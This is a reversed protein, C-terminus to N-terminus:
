PVICNCTTVDGNCGAGEPDLGVIQDERILSRIAALHDSTFAAPDTISCFDYDGLPISDLLACADNIQALSDDGLDVTSSVAGINALARTLGTGFERLDDDHIPDGPDRTAGSNDCVDYGPTVVGDQDADAYYSLITGMKAFSVLVMLLNEDSTRASVDGISEILAEAARCNDIRTFDSGSRFHGMLLEFLRQSGMDGIADIFPLFELGCLGAHATARLLVVDRRSSYEPSMADIADLAGQYDRDNLRKGADVKLSENTETAFVELVNTSCSLNLIAWACLLIRRM